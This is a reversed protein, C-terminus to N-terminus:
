DLYFDDFIYTTVPKVGIQYKAVLEAIRKGNILTIVRTGIRSTEIAGKSFDSTTIFIGFEANFKDMAGRFKDIEPAQVTDKWRKAQIAVRATRFEDSTIYGFGDLGGDNTISIGIKDDIDVGMERVLRRAFDEFKKPSFNMLKKNLEDKWDDFVQEEKDDTNNKDEEIEDNVKQKRKSEFDKDIKNFDKLFNYHEYDINSGLDTLILKKYDRKVMKLIELYKISFNFDFKFPSYEKGSKKSKRIWDVYGEPIEDCNLRIYDEIDTKTAIGGQKKLAKIIYKALVYDRRKAKYNEIDSNM